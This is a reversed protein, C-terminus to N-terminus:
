LLWHYDDALLYSVTTGTDTLILRVKPIYPIGNYSIRNLKVQWHFSGSVRHSVFSSPLLTDPLGGFM